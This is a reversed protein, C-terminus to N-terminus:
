TSSGSATSTSSPREEFVDAMSACFVRPAASSRRCRAGVEAAGGLAQRRLVPLRPRRGVLQATATGPRSRTPTATRAARRSASAAGGRTSRTTRGSSRHDCADALHQAIEAHVPAPPPAPAERPGAAQEDPERVASAAGAGQDRASGAGRGSADKSPASWAGAIPLGLFKRVGNGTPVKGWGFYTWVDQWSAFGSLAVTPPGWANAPLYGCTKVDSPLPARGHTEYFRYFSAIIEDRTYPKRRRRRAVLLEDNSPGAAVETAGGDIVRLLERASLKDEDVIREGCWPCCDGVPMSEQACRACWAGVIVLEGATGKEARVRENVTAAV